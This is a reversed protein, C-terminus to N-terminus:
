RAGARELIEVIKPFGNKKAEGLATLDDFELNTLNPDAGSDILFQVLEVHGCQAATRIAKGERENPDLGEELLVKMCEVDGGIAVTYQLKDTTKVHVSAGNQILFRLMQANKTSIALEIPLIDDVLTETSISPGNPLSEDVLKNLWVKRQRAARNFDVGKARLQKLLEFDAMTIGYYTDRKPEVGMQILREAIARKGHLVAKDALNNGNEDKSDLSAGNELLFILSEENERAAAMVACRGDEDRFNVNAGAGVLKKLIEPYKTAEILATNPDAGAKLFLDLM